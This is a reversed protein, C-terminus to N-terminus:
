FRGCGGVSFVAHGKLKYGLHAATWFRDGDLGARPGARLSTAQTRAGRFV